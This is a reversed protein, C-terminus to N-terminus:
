YFKAMPLLYVAWSKSGIWPLWPILSAAIAERNVSAMGITTRPKAFVGPQAWQWM